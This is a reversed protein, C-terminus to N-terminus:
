NLYYIIEPFYQSHLIAKPYSRPTLHSDRRYKNNGGRSAISGPPMGMSGQPMAMSGLPIAQLTGRCKGMNRM